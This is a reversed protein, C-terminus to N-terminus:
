PADKAISQMTSMTGMAGAVDQSESVLFKAAREILRVEEEAALALNWLGDDDLVHAKAKLAAIVERTKKTSVGNGEKRAV